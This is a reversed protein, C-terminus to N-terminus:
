PFFRRPKRRGSQRSPHGPDLGRANVVQSISQRSAEAAEKVAVPQKLKGCRKLEIQRFAAREDRSSAQASKKWPTTPEMGIAFFRMASLVREKRPTLSALSAHHDGRLIARSDRADIPRSRTKNRSSIASIHIKRTASCANELSLPEKASEQFKPVKQKDFPVHRAERGIGEPTPEERASRM